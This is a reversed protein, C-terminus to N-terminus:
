YRWRNSTVTRMGGASVGTRHGSGVSAPKRVIRTCSGSTGPSSNRSPPAQCRMWGIGPARVILTPSWACTRARKTRQAQECQMCPKAPWHHVHGKLVRGTQLVPVHLCVGVNQM